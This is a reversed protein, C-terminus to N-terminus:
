GKWFPWLDGDWFPCWCFQWSLTEQCNQSNTVEKPNTLNRSGKPFATFLSRWRDPIFLDRSSDGPLPKKTFKKLNKKRRGHNLLADLLSTVGRWRVTKYSKRESQHRYELHPATKKLFMKKLTLFVVCVLTKPLDDRWTNFARTSKKQDLSISFSPNNLNHPGTVTFPSVVTITFCGWTPTFM